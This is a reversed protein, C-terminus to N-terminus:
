GRSLIGPVWQIPPQTSRLAPRSMSLSSSIDKPQAVSRVGTIWKTTLYQVSQAVGAGTHNPFVIFSRKLTWKNHFSANFSATTVCIWVEMETSVRINNAIAFPKRHKAVYVLLQHLATNYPRLHYIHDDRRYLDSKNGVTNQCCSNWHFTNCCERLPQQYAMNDLCTQSGALAGWWFLTWFPGATCPGLIRPRKGGCRMNM